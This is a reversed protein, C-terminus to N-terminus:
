PKGAPRWGFTRDWLCSEDSNIISVVSFSSAQLLGNLRAYAGLAEPHTAGIYTAISNGEGFFALHLSDMRPFEATLKSILADCLEDESTGVWGVTLNSDWMAYFKVHRIRVEECYQALVDVLNAGSYVHERDDNLISRQSELLAQVHGIFNDFEKRQPVAERFHFVLVYDRYASANAANKYALTRLEKWAREVSIRSYGGVNESTHYETVEVGVKSRSIDMIFDPTESFIIEDPCLNLLDLHMGLIAREREKKANRTM